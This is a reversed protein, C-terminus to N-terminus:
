RQNRRAKKAARSKKRGKVVRKGYAVTGRHAIKNDFLEIVKGENRSM